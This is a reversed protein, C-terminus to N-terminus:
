ELTAVLNDSHVVVTTVVIRRQLFGAYATLQIVREVCVHAAVDGVKWRRAANELLMPGLADYVKRCMRADAVRYLVRKRVDLHINDPKRVNELAASKM